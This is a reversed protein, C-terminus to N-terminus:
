KRLRSESLVRRLRRLTPWLERKIAGRRLEAPTPLSLSPTGPTAVDTVDEPNLGLARLIARISADDRSVVGGGHLLVHLRASTAIGQTPATATSRLRLPELGLERLHRRQQPSLGGLVCEAM